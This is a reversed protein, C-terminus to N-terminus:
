CNNRLIKFIKWRYFYLYLLIWKYMLYLPNVKVKEENQHHELEILEKLIQIQKTQEMVKQKLNANETLITDELYNKKEQGDTELRQIIDDIYANSILHDDDRDRISGNTSSQTSSQSDYKEFQECKYKITMNELKINRNETELSSILKNKADLELLALEISRSFEDLQTKLNKIYLERSEYKALLESYMTSYKSLNEDIKSNLLKEINNVTDLTEKEHIISKEFYQSEKQRFEQEFVVCSNKLTELADRYEISRETQQELDNVTAEYKEQLTVLEDKLTEVDMDSKRLRDTLVNVTSRTSQLTLQYNYKETRLQNCETLLSQLRTEYQQVNENEFKCQSMLDYIVKDKDNIQQLLEAHLAQLQELDSQIRQMETQKKQKELEVTEDIIHEMNKIKEETQIESIRIKEMASDNIHEIRALYEDELKKLKKQYEELNQHNDQALQIIELQHNENLTRIKEESEEKIQEVLELRIADRMTDMEIDREEIEEKLEMLLKDKQKLDNELRGYDKRLNEIEQLLKSSEAAYCLMDEESRKRADGLKQLLDTIQNNLSKADAELENFKSNKLESLDRLSTYDKQTTFLEGRLEDLTETLCKNETLAKENKVEIESNLGVLFNIENEHSKVISKIEDELKSNKQELEHIKQEFELSKSNATQIENEFVKIQADKENISEKSKKLSTTLHHIESELENLRTEVGKM